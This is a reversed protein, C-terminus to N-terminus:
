EKAGEEGARSHRVCQKSTVKEFLSSEDRINALPAPLVGTPILPMDNFRKPALLGFFYHARGKESNYMKIHQKPSGMEFTTVTVRSTKRLYEGHPILYAFDTLLKVYKKITRKGVGQSVQMIAERVDAYPIQQKDQYGHDRLWFIMQKLKHIGGRRDMRPRHSFYKNEVEKLKM